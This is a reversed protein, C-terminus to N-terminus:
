KRLLTLLYDSNKITTTLKLTDNNLYGVNFTSFSTKIINNELTYAEALNEAKPNLNTKMQNSDFEFYGKDLFRSKAGDKLAEDIEWRGDLMNSTYATKGDNTCSYAIFIVLSLLIYKPLHSM